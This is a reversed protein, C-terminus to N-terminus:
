HASALASESGLSPDALRAAELYALMIPGFGHGDDEVPPKLMIYSEIKGRLEGEGPALCGPCCWQVRQGPRVAYTELGRIGRDFSERFDAPDILGLRMGVGFGYLVLATGSSEPYAWEATIEQRWFGQPTQWPLLARCLDVFRRVVGERHPSDEPLYQVLETLAILGWGNGRGWHDETMVGPAIFGEAQHLLGNDPNRFLDIMLVTQNVAEDIYRQEGLALGAFLLYPTAAMAVDIWVSHHSKPHSLIGRSDRPAATMMEEAYERVYARTADDTMHGRFLMYARPIGGITYSPFNYSPHEVEDPFRALIERCRDLSVASPDLEAARCLAYIGLLGYYHKIERVSAQHDYLEVATTVLSM